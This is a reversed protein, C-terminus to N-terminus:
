LGLIKDIDARPQGELGVGMKTELRCEKMMFDNVDIINSMPVGMAQCVLKLRYKDERINRVVLRSYTLKVEDLDTDFDAPFQDKNITFELTILPNGSSKSNGLKSGTCTAKYTGAPLPPTPEAEAINSSFELISSM